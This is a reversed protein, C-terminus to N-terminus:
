FVKFKLFLNDESRSVLDLSYKYYYDLQSVSLQIKNKSSDSIFKGSPNYIYLYLGYDKSSTANYGYEFFNLLLVYDAGPIRPYFLKDFKKGDFYMKELDSLVDSSAISKDFLGISTLAFSSFVPLSLVIALLLFVVIIKKM